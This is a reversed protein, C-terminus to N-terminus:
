PSTHAAVSSGRVLFTVTDLVRGDDGVLNLRHRGPTPPWLFMKAAEGVTAEDLVFRQGPVADRAEFPARQRGPPMDPDLAIITGEVPAVIRPAAAGSGATTALPETGERFWEIRAPEADAAFTVARRVLGSPSPPPESPIKEHLRSMVEGWVPAAGTVGSVDRMPEGSANGVWVGVTYRRSYGVAWNDRMEKSTGTKVATWFRTALPSELGFTVSRSERDSLISSVLFATDQSYVRRREGSAEGPTMRLPSWVGGNALARYAGVMEWLSVDASGLALSPGYFDGAEVVGAFGLRRLQEVMAEAGLLGLTRVAPVNLSGALATRVSVFGRFQEDYNHPRYLGTPTAVELPADELLSAPTLLRQDFALGYLFPKLASGAQRHAQVADVHRAESLGGSGGVYALVEGTANDAVLVAGDHVRQDRVALLQRTLTEVAFRQLSGDLTSAIRWPAHGAPPVDRLLRAAAHPALEVRSGSSSSAHQIRSVAADLTERPIVKGAALTHARAAVLAPGANPARLLAALVVAEPETLGHPAKGFLIEAAADVGELEGSFPVLNLYAELIQAKSWRSEIAWAGRMQRLKQPISRPGGRRRLPPDVLSALQMTVTSAGRPGRHSLRQLAAAALARADVGGHAYFRRDESALVASQLAPSIEDLAVWRLRRRREDVRQEHIVDGDRDLLSIESPRWADRVHDFTPPVPLSAGPALWFVLGYRALAIAGVAAVLARRV